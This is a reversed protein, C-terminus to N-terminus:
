QRSMSKDTFGFTFSELQSFYELFYIFNHFDGFFAYFIILINELFLNTLGGHGTGLGSSFPRP